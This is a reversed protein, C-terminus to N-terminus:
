EVTWKETRGDYKIDTKIETIPKWQVLFSIDSTFRFPETSTSRYPYMRISLTATWDGLFHNVQLNLSQLKFGSRRRKSEDFFNFSDILDIFLNNQPGDIYMHTLDAMGPFDKFYRFIVSNDSTSSLTLELLGTIRASLSMTFQFNSDTYRQLNFDLSTNFSFNMNFRNRIIEINRFSKGYSIQLRNPNLSPEGESKWEGGRTHDNEDNFVFRSKAVKIASFNVRLEWLSLSSNIRTIEFDSEPDITMNFSLSGINAFRLTERIEIPRFIWDGEEKDPFQTNVATLREMRFSVGTETIWFRFSGSTSILEDLPPLNASVTISQNKDMINASINASLQHSNLGYIDVGDKREEKVWSGWQPTLEPGHPSDNENYAKSRVLTGRFSYQLSSQRFIPNDFFPQFRGTYSYSSTYSTQAFEQRRLRRMTDTDVEGSSSTFADDYLYIDRYTGSGTLSVTNTFIGTSHDMRINISANGSVSTRISQVDSYDIDDVTRWNKNIFQLESSSTPSFQYDISFRINGTRPLTFTQRLVPPTLPDAAAAAAAAAAEAENEPWPSIPIGINKLPDEVPADPTRTTRATTNGLNLPTGSVSGSISYLTLKDPAYFFIGPDQSNIVRDTPNSRMTGFGLTMSINSISLRSIFPALKPLQPNISGSIQWQYSQIENQASTAPDIAAGQQLMSIYDMSEARDLFDRDVYPDSYYPFLLSLGGYRGSIGTSLRMRYRFPVQFFLFKSTNWDFTGDYDPAYPTYAGTSSNHFITRSFGLGLTFDIANLIGTRPTLLDLGAYVGLNVYYDLMAKLSVETKSVAKKGTSRLFLGHQEKEMDNSNGLIRSLSSSDSSDAKPRGLIYYTTQIFGGERNRYGLVPHFVIEDTPFFFFPIYLVPIEGVKLVANFIAFDSGPLLWLRSANISWFPEESGASSIRANRLITVDDGTRSIVQGSFLYASGDSELTSSGDLFISSWDDINVKINEGRFTETKDKDIKKYEVKGKATIINRTRNFLIENASIEHVTEGDKLSISVDGKLRAYDENVADITFYETTQASKITITKQNASPQDESEPLKFHDSIRKSLEARTGSQPLGLSRCWQALEGLTSTRIEMEIRQREQASIRSVPETQKVEVEEEEYEDGDDDDAFVPLICFLLFLFLFIKKLLSVSSHKYNNKALMTKM